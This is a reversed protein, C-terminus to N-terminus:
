KQLRDPLEHTALGPKQGVQTQPIEVIFKSGKGPVSEVWIKGHHADIMQKSIYLGLGLGSINQNSIVREFRNFIVAQKDLPIGMGYDKVTLRAIGSEEGLTIEILTGPSYKMANSLLNIFVQEIRFGDCWAYIDKSSEFHVSCKVASLADAFRELVNKVIESLNVNAFNFSLKGGEIRSIDLLDEVLSTLRDVQASSTELTRALKAPSPATNEAVNIQRRAYQLQMKLSTIPTKLEHSAISLFEDRVQVAKKVDQMSRELARVMTVFATTLHGIEDASLVPVQVTLNGRAVQDTAFLLNDLSRKLKRATTFGSLLAFGFLLIALFLSVLFPTFRHAYVTSFINNGLRSLEIQVGRLSELTDLEFQKVLLLEKMVTHRDQKSRIPLHELIDLTHHNLEELSSRSDNLLRQVQESKPSLAISSEIANRAQTYSTKFVPLSQLPYLNSEKILKELKARTPTINDTARAAYDMVLNINSLDRLDGLYSRSFLFTGASELLLFLGFTLTMFRFRKVISTKQVFSM